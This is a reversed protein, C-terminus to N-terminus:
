PEVDTVGSPSGFNDSIAQPLDFCPKKGDHRQKEAEQVVKQADTFSELLLRRGFRLARAECVARCTLEIIVIDTLIHPCCPRTSELM